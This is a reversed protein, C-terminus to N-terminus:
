KQYKSRINISRDLNSLSRRLSPFLEKTNSKSDVSITIKSKYATHLSPSYFYGGGFDQNSFRRSGVPLWQNSCITPISQDVAGNEDDIEDSLRTTEELKLFLDLIEKSDVDKLTESKLKEMSEILKHLHDPSNASKSASDLTKCNSSVSTASNPQESKVEIQHSRQHEKLAELYRSCVPTGPISLDIDFSHYANPESINKIVKQAPKNFAEGNNNISALPRDSTSNENNLAANQSKRNKWEKLALVYQSSVPTGPISLDIYPLEDNVITKTKPDPPRSWNTFISKM